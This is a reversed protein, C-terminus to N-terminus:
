KSWYWYALIFWFAVNTIQFILSPYQWFLKRKLIAVELEAIKGELKIRELEIRAIQIKESEM